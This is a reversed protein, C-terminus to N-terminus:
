DDTATYRGDLRPYFYHYAEIGIELAEQETIGNTAKVGTTTQMAEDGETGFSTTYSYVGDDDATQM